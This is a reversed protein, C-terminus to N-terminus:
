KRLHHYVSQVLEKIQPSINRMIQKKIRSSPSTTHLYAYRLGHEQLYTSFTRRRASPTVPRSKLPNGSSAQEYTTKVCTFDELDRLLLSGKDTHVFIVSVGSANWFPDKETCGWYDGITIDAVTNRGKYVCHSCSPRSLHSFAYGYETDYFPKCYIKESAFKAYLYPPTWAGDKKYRVSFDIIDSKNEEELTQLYEQAVRESTPGHCILEVTYLNAYEKRLYSKLAGVECPLGIFLVPTDTQLLDSIQAYVRGKRAQIYKSGQFTKLEDLTTAITYEAARFNKTYRVGVVVGGQKIISESLETAAGGSSSRILKKTNKTYGAYVAIDHEPLQLTTVQLIPCIKECLNCHTCLTEAIEPYLFGESDYQM